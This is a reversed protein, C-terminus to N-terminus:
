PERPRERGAGRAADRGHDRGRSSEGGRVDLLRGDAGDLRLRAISGDPRLLKVEYRWAGHERDLEVEVIEGPHNREVVEIIRRLPVVEGALLARRARDHDDDGRAHAPAGSVGAISLFAGLILAPLARAATSM